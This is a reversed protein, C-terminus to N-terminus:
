DSFTRIGLLNEIQTSQYDDNLKRIVESEDRCSKLDLSVEMMTSSSTFVASSSSTSIIFAIIGGNRVLFPINM